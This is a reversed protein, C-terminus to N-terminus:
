QAITGAEEAYEVFYQEWTGLSCLILVNQSIERWSM